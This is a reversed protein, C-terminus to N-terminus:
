SSLCPLQVDRPSCLVMELLLGGCILCCGGGGDGLRMESGSSSYVEFLRKSIHMPLLRPLREVGFLRVTEGARQPM